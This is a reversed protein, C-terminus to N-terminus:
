LYKTNKLNPVADFDEKFKVFLLKQEERPLAIIVQYVIEANM